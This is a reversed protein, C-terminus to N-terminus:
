RKRKKGTPRWNGHEIGQLLRMAAKANAESLCRQKTTWKGGKKHMVNKGIIKYPM